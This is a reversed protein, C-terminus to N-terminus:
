LLGRFPLVTVMSGSALDNADKPIRVLCNAAAFSALRNSSQDGPVAVELQGDHGSLWGRQYEERGPRHRVPDRLRAQTTLPAASETGALKLLAPVALLLATVVTSVPNGPLGIFITRGLRGYALPKGPKLNLRWLRIDGFRAVAQKVLDADGVSVGGSTIVADYHKTVDTLVSDLAAEEDRLIGLDDLEVPLRGLLVRLAYRNADFIQGAALTEGPERLEDGTSFIAVRPRRLVDVRTIGCAALWAFQFAEIRAGAAVVTAGAAIDHGAPRINDASRVTADILVFDGDSRCEEQIAVADLEDPLAAGTFIRVCAGRPVAGAFPHGASSTGVVRLRAPTAEADAARLAYGDM